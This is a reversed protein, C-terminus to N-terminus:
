GSTKESRQILSMSTVTRPRLSQLSLYLAALAAPLAPLLVKASKWFLSQPGSALGTAAGAAVVVAGAALGASVLGAAFGASVLGAVAAVVVGAAGATSLFAASLAAALAARASFRLASAAALAAALGAAAVVAGAVAATNGVAMASFNLVFFGDFARKAVQRSWYLALLAVLAM